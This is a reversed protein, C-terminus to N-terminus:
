PTPEVDPKYRRLTQINGARKGQAPPTQSQKKLAALPAPDNSDEQNIEKPHSTLEGGRHLLYILTQTVLRTYIDPQFLQFVLCM